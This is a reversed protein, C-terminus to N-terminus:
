ILKSLAVLQFKSINGFPSTIAEFTGPGKGTVNEV